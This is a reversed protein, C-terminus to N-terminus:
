SNSLPIDAINWSLSWARMGGELTRAEIGRAQLQESATKSAHGANCVTVVPIDTPLSIGDLAYPNHSKLDAYADLHVSGPITWAAHDIDSRVDLIIVPKGEELWKRLTEADISNM